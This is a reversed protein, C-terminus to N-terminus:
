WAEALQSRDGYTDINSIGQFDGVDESGGSSETFYADLFVQAGKLGVMKELDFGSSVDYMRRDSARENVGGSWVSSWEWIFAADVTIGKDELWTRGGGWDGTM